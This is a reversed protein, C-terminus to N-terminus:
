KQSSGMHRKTATWNTNLIQLTLDQHTLPPLQILNWPCSLMTTHPDSLQDAPSSIVCPPSVRTHKLSLHLLRKSACAVKRGQSRM